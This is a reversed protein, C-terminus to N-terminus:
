EEKIIIYYESQMHIKSLFHRLKNKRSYITGCIECALKEKSYHILKEINQLKQKEYVNKM